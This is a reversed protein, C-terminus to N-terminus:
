FQEILKYKMEMYKEKTIKGQKYLNELNALKELLIDASNKYQGLSTTQKKLPGIRNKEIALSIAIVTSFDSSSVRQIIGKLQDSNKEKSALQLRQIAKNREGNVLAIIGLLTNKFYPNKSICKSKEVERKVLRLKGKKIKSIIDPCNCTCKNIKLIWKEKWPLFEKLIEKVSNEFLVRVVKKTEPFLPTKSCISVRYEVSKNKLVMGDRSHFVQIDFAIQGEKCPAQVEKKKVTLKKLNLFLIFINGYAKYIKILDMESISKVGIGKRKLFDSFGERNIITIGKERIKEEIYGTFEYPTSQSPIIIIGSYKSTLEPSHLVTFSLNEGYMIFSLICFFVIATCRKM